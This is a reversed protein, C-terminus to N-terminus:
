TTGFITLSIIVVEELTQHHDELDEEQLEQRMDEMLPKIRTFPKEMNQFKNKSMIDVLVHLM